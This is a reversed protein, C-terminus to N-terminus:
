LFLVRYRWAGALRWFVAVPPIAIAGALAEAVHRPGRPAGELRRWAFAGTLAAWAALASWALLPSRALAGALVAVIALAAAYHSWPPHRRIRERYLQPHKKFLLADFAIRRHRRLAYSWGPVPRAPHKVVANPARVVRGFAKLLRFQLDSDERSAATFREDFGGIAALADRRVFCNAAVFEAQAMRALDNEYESPRASPPRVMVRGAAAIAGGAMAKWGEELWDPHPVADDDTFAIILGSSVRWGCNRASAPGRTELAPVYHIRPSGRTGAAWREVQLRTPEDAADDAVIIEYAAHDFDQAVLAGLCRELFEPRRCTPVVVSVLMM